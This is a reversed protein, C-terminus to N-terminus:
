FYKDILEKIDSRIRHDTNYQVYIIKGNNDVLYTAPVPLVDNNADNYQAIKNQVHNYYSTVTSKDVKYAVKYATMITNDADHIISFHTKLKDQTELNKTPKEPTVVMVFVNKKQLANLNAQLSTLHKRCYPCWNGRYFVLLIKKNKLIEKSNITNGYQDKALIAPAKEGISLHENNIQAFIATTFLLCFSFIYKM